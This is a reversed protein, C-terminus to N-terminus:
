AVAVDLIHPFFSVFGCGTVRPAIVVFAIGESDSAIRKHVHSWLFDNNIM